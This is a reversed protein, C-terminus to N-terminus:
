YVLVEDEKKPITSTLKAKKLVYGLIPPSFLTTVIVVAVAMAHMETNLIGMKKGMATLVLGVEGRPAMGLGIAWKNVGKGAFWGSGVKGAIMLIGVSVAVLAVKPNTIFISIDMNMGITVFFIPVTFYALPEILEELKAEREKSLSKFHVSELFLGAVFAGMILSIGVEEAIYATFFCIALLLILRAQAHHKSLSSFWKALLPAAVRGGVIAAVVFLVIIVLRKTIFFWSVGGSVFISVIVAAMTLVLIDDNVAAGNIIRYERTNMKGYDTFIALTIGVSTACMTVAFFLHQSLSAGTFIVMSCAVALIFPLLVGMTAVRFSSNFSERMEKVSTHLGAQFLLLIVGIEGLFHLVENTSAGNFATINVMPLNGIAVGALLTGVVQPMGIKQMLGGSLEAALIIAVVWWIIQVNAGQTLHVAEEPGLSFVFFSAAILLGFLIWNKM